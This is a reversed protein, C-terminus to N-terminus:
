RFTADMFSFPSQQANIIPQAGSGYAGFTIPNGTSGASSTTLTERWVCGHQFLISDGPNFSQANVHAITLWPTSPSTGNNSDNGVTVCNDVYYTTASLPLGLFVFLFVFILLRGGRRLLRLSRRRDTEHIRFRIIAGGSNGM